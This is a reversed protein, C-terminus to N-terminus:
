SRNLSEMYNLIKGSIDDFIVKYSNDPHSDSWEKCEKFIAIAESLGGPRLFKISAVMQKAKYVDTEQELYHDTDLEQYIALCEQALPMVEAEDQESLPETMKKVYTACLNLLTEAICAKADMAKTSGYIRRRADLARNLMTRATDYNGLLSLVFGYNHFVDSKHWLVASSDIFHGHDLNYVVEDLYYRARVYDDYKTASDIFSTAICNPFDCFLDDWVGAPVDNWAVNEKLSIYLHEAEYLKNRIESILPRIRLWCAMIRANNVITETRPINFSDNWLRVKGELKRINVKASGVKGIETLRNIYTVYLHMIYGRILASAADMKDLNSIAKEYQVLSEPVLNLRTLSNAYNMRMMEVTPDEIRQEDAFEAIELYQRDVDLGLSDFQRPYTDHLSVMFMMSKLLTKSDVGGNALLHQQVSARKGSLKILEVLHEENQLHEMLYKQRAALKRDTEKLSDTANAKVKDAMALAASNKQIDLELADFDTVEDENGTMANKCLISTTISALLNALKESDDRGKVNTIALPAIRQNFFSIWDNEVKLGSKDDLYSLTSGLIWRIVNYRIRHISDFAENFVKESMSNLLADGSVATDGPNYYLLSAQPHSGPGASEIAEIIELKDENSLTDKLIANYLDCDKILFPQGKRALRCRLNLWRECIDDLGRIMNGYVAREDERDDPITVYVKREEKGPWSGSSPHSAIYEYVIETLRSILESSDACGCATLGESTLFAEMDSTDDSTPQTFVYLQDPCVKKGIKVEEKTYEGCRTRFLAIFIQSERVLDSNYEDQKRIGVYEPHYDEWCKMRIRYGQLETTSTLNRIADGIADRWSKM